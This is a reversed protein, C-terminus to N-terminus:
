SYRQGDRGYNSRYAQFKMGLHPMNPSIRKLFPDESFQKIIYRIDAEDLGLAKGVIFDLLEIEQKYNEEANNLHANNIADVVERLNEIPIPINLFVERDTYESDSLVETVYYALYKYLLDDPVHIDMFLGSTIRNDRCIVEDSRVKINEPFVALNIKDLAIKNNIICDRLTYTVSNEIMQEVHRYKNLIDNSHSFIRSGIAEIEQVDINKPVPLNHIEAVNWVARRRLMVETRLTKFAFYQPIHSLLYINLPFPKKLCVVHVSNNFVLDNGCKVAVPVQSMKRTAFVNNGLFDYYRYINLSVVKKDDIDWKGLEDGLICEPFINSGKYVSKGTPSLGENGGLKLGEKVLVTERYGAPVFNGDAVVVENGDKKNIWLRTALDIMRKNKGIIALVPVDDPYVKPTIRDTSNGYSGTLIDQIPMIHIFAKTFDILNDIENYADDTLVTIRVRHDEPPMENKIILIIPVTDADF